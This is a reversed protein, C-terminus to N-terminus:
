RTPTTGPRLVVPQPSLGPSALEADLQELLKKLLVEERKLNQRFQWSDTDAIEMRLDSLYSSLAGRLVAAEDQTLTIQAMIPRRDM